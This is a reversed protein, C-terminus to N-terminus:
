MIGRICGFSGRQASCFCKRSISTTLLIRGHDPANAFCLQHDSTSSQRTTELFKHLSVGTVMFESSTYLTNGQHPRIGLVSGLIFMPSERTRTSVSIQVYSLVRLLMLM